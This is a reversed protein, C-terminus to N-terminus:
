STERFNITYLTGGAIQFQSVTTSNIVYMRNNKDQPIGFRTLEENTMELRLRSRATIMSYFSNPNMLVDFAITIHTYRIVEAITGNLSFDRDTERVFSVNPTNYVFGDYFLANNSANRIIM